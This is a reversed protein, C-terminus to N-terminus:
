VSSCLLQASGILAVMVRQSRADRPLAARRRNVGTARESTRSRRRRGSHGDPIKPAAALRDFSGM